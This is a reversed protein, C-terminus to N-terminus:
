TACGVASLLGNPIAATIARTLRLKRVPTAAQLRLLVSGRQSINRDKKLSGLLTTVAAVRSASIPWLRMRYGVASCRAASAQTAGMVTSDPRLFSVPKRRPQSWRKRSAVLVRAGVLPVVPCVSVEGVSSGASVVGM